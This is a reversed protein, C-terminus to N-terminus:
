DSIDRDLINRSWWFKLLSPYIYIYFKVCDKCVFFKSKKVRLRVSLCCFSKAEEVDLCLILYAYMSQVYLFYVINKKGALILVAVFNLFIHWKIRSVLQIVAMLNNSKLCLNFNANKKTLAIAWITLCINFHEPVNIWQNFHDV